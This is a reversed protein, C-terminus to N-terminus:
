LTTELARIVLHLCSVTVNSIFPTVFGFVRVFSVLEAFYLSVPAFSALVLRVVPIRCFAAIRRFRLREETGFSSRRRSPEHLM